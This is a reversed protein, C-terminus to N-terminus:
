QRSDPNPPAWCPPVSAEYMEKAKTNGVKAMNQLFFGPFFLSFSCLLNPIRVGPIIKIYNNYKCYTFPFAISHKGSGNRQDMFRTSHIESQVRECQTSPSYWCVQHMLVSRPKDIGM